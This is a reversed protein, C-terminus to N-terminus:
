KYLRVFIIRELGFIYLGKNIYVVLVCFWILVFQRKENICGIYEVGFFECFCILFFMM